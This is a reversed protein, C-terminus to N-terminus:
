VSSERREGRESMTALAPVRMGAAERRAIEDALAMAGLGHEEDTATSGGGGNSLYVALSGARAVAAPSRVDPDFRMVEVRFTRGDVGALLMPVAGGARADVRLLTCSGFRTGPRLALAGAVNGGGLLRAGSVGLATVASAAVGLSVLLNRRSLSM